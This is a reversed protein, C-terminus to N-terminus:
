NKKYKQKLEKLQEIFKENRAAAQEMIRIAEQSDGKAESILAYTYLLETNNKAIQLGREVAEAAEETENRELLVQALTNLYSPNDSELGAAIRALPLAEASRGQELYIEAVERLPGAAQQLTAEKVARQRLRDPTLNANPLVASPFAL